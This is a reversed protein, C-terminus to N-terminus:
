LVFEQGDYAVEVGAAVVAAHEPSSRDLIPNTNNMHLYLSKGPLKSLTDLSGGSGAIPLHGMAVADPAGPRIALLEDWTYFTGDVLRCDAAELEALVGSDLAKMGPLYVLRRGTATETIRVGVTTEKHHSVIDRLFPPVKPAVPFFHLIM